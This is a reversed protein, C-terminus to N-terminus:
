EVVIKSIHQIHESKIQILYTGAALGSLPLQIKSEKTNSKQHLVVQGSLSTINIVLAETYRLIPLEIWVNGKAPNPFVKIAEISKYGDFVVHRTPTYTYNGDLDVMKIRYYNYGAYPKYDTLSYEAGIASNKSAVTSLYEFHIADASKEIEYHSHNIESATKWELLVYEGKKTATFQLLTVPLPGVPTYSSAWGDGDGGLTSASVYNSLYANSSIGDGSGGNNGKASYACVYSSTNIGDGNGGNNTKATYTPIFSALNVGDGSAGFYSKASYNQLFANLGAGDGSSGLNTGSNYNQIHNNQNSGDGGGGYFIPNNQALAQLNLFVFFLILYIRMTFSKPIFPIIRRNQM